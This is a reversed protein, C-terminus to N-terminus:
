TLLPAAARCAAHLPLDGNNDATQLAAAYAQLFPRVINVPAGVQCAIHLPLAGHDDRIHFCNAPVLQLLTQFHDLRLKGLPLQVQLSLAHGPHAAVHLFTAAQLISHIAQLGERATVKEVYARLLYDM